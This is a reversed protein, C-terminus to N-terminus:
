DKAEGKILYGYISSYFEKRSEIQISIM